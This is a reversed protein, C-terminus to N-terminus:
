YIKKLEDVGYLNKFEALDADSRILMVDHYKGTRNDIFGATKEGTCISSKVAPIENERDYSLQAHKKRGFMM